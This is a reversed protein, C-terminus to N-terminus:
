HKKAPMKAGPMYIRPLSAVWTKIKQGIEDRIRRFEDLRQEESGTAKAPDEFPWMHRELIGPWVAPCTADADHCVIVLIQVPWHGLFEDLHKSRAESLDIGIENMVRVTLPNVGKPETGASRVDFRDGGYKKFFAEAMQSRASNGTCLVLLSIKNSAM